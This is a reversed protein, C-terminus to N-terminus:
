AVAATERDNELEKSGLASEYFLTSVKFSCVDTKAAIKLSMELWLWLSKLVYLIGFSTVTRECVLM